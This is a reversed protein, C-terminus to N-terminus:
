LGLSVYGTQLKKQELRRLRKQGQEERMGVAEKRILVKTRTNDM